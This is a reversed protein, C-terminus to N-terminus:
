QIIGPHVMRSPVMLRDFEEAGIVGLKLAAHRLTLDHELAYRAVESARDYGISPSLATVPMLSREVYWATKKIDVKMGEVAFRTFSDMSDSLLNISHLINRILLPKYANMELYGGAGGMAVAMDNAMVQVSVMSLVECQSPNIKGPMMSSGPENSPLLIEGIGARPGCALFRIDNSIKLLSVALTKLAASLGVLADHSGQAAFKNPASVFPLGTYRAIEASVKVGFDPDANLGTGVATGGAALQYVDGLAFGIRHRNDDLLGVYGSLEQGFTLPTADQLHTRGIKVIENWEGSKKFLGERLIKLCPLLRNHTGMAVAICMATPFGDNTSQAMNIHDNPHLPEKSGLPRGSIQSGRNAIVENVNMNFQTGSGSMWVNLPFMAIHRGDLLEDCVSVILDKQDATLHGAQFNVQACAKKLYAYASIMEAPMPDNGISFHELARQTEAGWLKDPAVRVKGMSDSETRYTNM